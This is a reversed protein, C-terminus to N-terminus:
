SKPPFAIQRLRERRQTEDLDQGRQANIPVDGSISRSGASRMMMSRRTSRTLFGILFWPTHGQARVLWELVITGAIVLYIGTGKLISVSISHTIQDPKQQDIAMAGANASNAKRTVAGFNAAARTPALRQM